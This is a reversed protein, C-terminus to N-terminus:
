YNEFIPNVRTKKKVMEFFKHWKPIRVEWSYFNNFYDMQMKRTSEYFNNKVNDLVENLKEAYKEVLNYGSSDIEVMTAFDGCVEPLAGYNTTLVHCGAMMAEVACLCFTEEEICPYTLVDCSKLANRIDENSAYGIYNVNSTNRCQEFISEFQGKAEEEFQSGYIKVSSYVDLEFDNRKQNLIEIAKLLVVLGRWPVSNYILKIKSNNKREFPDFSEIANKIVFSKHDPINYFNRFQNHQWHSVFVFWDVSDVFMRDGMFRTAEQKPGLHQWLINIKDKQINSPSCHTVMLNIGDLINNPLRSFLNEKLIETGGKANM